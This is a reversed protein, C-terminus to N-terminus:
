KWKNYQVNCLVSNLDNFIIEEPKDPLPPLNIITEKEKVEIRLRAFKDGSLIIKIPVYMRFNEPVGEQIVKCTVIYKGEENKESKYSFNYTPIDTGYIFQDFFWTMDRKLYKETIKKFDDTTAKKGYYTSFFERMMKEFADENMTNLDILLNRLMHLVWGGKKYIILWYDGKTESSQTRNGLWVPGAEQGSSFLYKRNNQIQEKWDDLIKFFIKNDKFAVQVFWLASYEAFAESLWQDHYSEFDVGIGWWQHAAEHARFLEGSKDYQVGQYNIWSLHLLGPFAEGHSYPISTVNLEKTPIKGFVNNYFQMCALIDTGIKEKMNSGSLIGHQSLTHSIKSHAADSIYVNVKNGDDDSYSHIDFNGLNFSANRIPIDSVWRSSVIGDSEETSILEGISILKYRKPNSFTIDYLARTRQFIGPYWMLSSKMAIWGLEDRELLDGHYYSKLKLSSYRGSIPIRVWLDNGAQVFATNEDNLLVSDVTLEHYIHLKIWKRNENVLFLDSECEGTVDLNGAINLKINYKEIIYDPQKPQIAKNSSYKAIRHFNNIIEKIRHGSFGTKRRKMLYIEEDDYPCIKFFLPEMKDLNIHAYFLSNNENEIFAQIFDPDFYVMDDDSLFDIIVKIESRLKGPSQETFELEAVLDLNTSDAFLIFLTNFKERLSEKELFRKLQDKEVNIPPTYIFEGEGKFMLACERGNVKSFKYVEGKLIDFLAVDKKIIIGEPPIKAVSVPQLNLLQDNTNLFRSVSVPQSVVIIPQLAALLFFLKILTM